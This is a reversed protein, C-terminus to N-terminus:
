QVEDELEERTILIGPNLMYLGVLTESYSSDFFKMLHGEPRMISAKFKKVPVGTATDTLVMYHSKAM